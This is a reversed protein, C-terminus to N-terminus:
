PVRHPSWPRIRFPFFAVTTDCGRTHLSDTSWARARLLLNPSLGAYVPTVVLAGPAV